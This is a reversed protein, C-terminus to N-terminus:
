KNSGILDEEQLTGLAFDLMIRQFILTVEAQAKAAAGQVYTQTAQAVTVQASIGLEYSEKQTRLALEGADFQIQSATLNEVANIVNALARQVDVKVTRELNQRNLETNKYQMLSLARQNKNQMRSFIPVSLNAGYSLSPNVNRFQTAFDSPILSYYFSGYNGFLSLTPLFGASLGKYAFQNAKAQYKLQELDARNQLAIAVLSDLSMKNYNLGENQIKPYVVQFDEAPNLQLTQALLAKDNQLTNRSRIVTAQAAKTLADQNYVDTIARSGVDFFGQIQELAAAQANYNEEAIKLLEQDLLVQLYQVAVSNLVDQRSRKVLYSQAMLQNNAQNIGNIGRLGNFLTLNGNFQAGFYNTKLDELGGDLTNPQQGEQRQFTSTLNVSPLMVAYSNAKQAQNVVLQNQQQKLLVNRDLGLKIAETFSLQSPNQAFAQMLSSLVLVSTLQIRM